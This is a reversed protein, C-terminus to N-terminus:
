LYHSKANKAFNVLNLPLQISSLGLFGYFPLVKYLKMYMNLDSGESPESSEKNFDDFAEKLGEALESAISARRCAGTTGAWIAVKLAGKGTPKISEL